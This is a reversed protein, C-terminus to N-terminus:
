YTISAYYYSIKMSVRYYHKQTTDVVLSGSCSRRRFLARWGISRRREEQQASASFRNIFSTEDPGAHIDTMIQRTQRLRHLWRGM